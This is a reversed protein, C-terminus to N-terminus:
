EEEGPSPGATVSGLYDRMLDVSQNINIKGDTEHRHWAPLFYQKYLAQEDKTDLDYIWQRLVEQSAQYANDQNIDRLQQDAAEEQALDHATHPIYHSYSHFIADIDLDDDSKSHEALVAGIKKQLQVLEGSEEESDDADKRKKDQQQEQMKEVDAVDLDSYGLRHPQFRKVGRKPEAVRKVSSDDGAVEDPSDAGKSASAESDTETDTSKEEEQDEVDEKKM